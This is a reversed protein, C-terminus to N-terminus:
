GRLGRLGRLGRKLLVRFQKTVRIRSKGKWVLGKRGKGENQSMVREKERGEEWKERGGCM